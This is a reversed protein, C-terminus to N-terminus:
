RMRQMRIPRSKGVKGLFSGMAAREIIVTDGVRPNFGRAQETTRWISGDELALIYFKTATEIAEVLKTEIQDLRESSATIAERAVPAAQAPSPTPAAAVVPAVPAVVRQSGALGFSAREDVKAQQRTSIVLDGSQLLADANAAERDFCALRATAEVVTRCQLIALSTAPQATVPAAMMAALLVGGAAMRLNSVQGYFILM